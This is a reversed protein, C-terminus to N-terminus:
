DFTRVSVIKRMGPRLDVAVRDTRGLQAGSDAHYTLEVEHQGAPLWMRLVGIDAPLLTWARLDAAESAAAAINGFLGVLAGAVKRGSSANSGGSVAAEAGKTAVYKVIARAIARAQLAPLQHAFNKLAINTVPEAIVSRATVGEASAQAYAIGHQQAVFEPLAMRMVYGDPMQGDFFLERKFPAEGSEHIIILEADQNKLHELSDGAAGTKKQWENAEDRLGSLAATRVVDEALYVPVPIGFQGAYESEYSKYADRYSLFADNYSGEMEYLVGVLWLVFADQRYLSGVGGEKDYEILMKKLFEDARRAEVLADQPKGLFLQNLATYYYLLIKEYDEGPYSQLTESVVLKSAEATISKTWLEQIAEEAKVLNQNSAEFDGAHHLVTGMNLWYMVRDKEGYVTDKSKELQAAATTWDGKVINPRMEQYQLRLDAQHRCAGAGVLATSAVLALTHLRLEVSKCGRM